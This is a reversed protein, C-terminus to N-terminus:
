GQRRPKKMLQDILKGLFHMSIAFVPVCLLATFIIKLITMTDM